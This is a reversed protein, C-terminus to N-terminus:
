LSGTETKFSWEVLMDRRPLVRVGVGQIAPAHNGVAGLLNDFGAGIFVSTDSSFRSVIATPTDLDVTIVTSPLTPSTPSRCPQDKEKSAKAYGHYHASFARLHCQIVMKSPM